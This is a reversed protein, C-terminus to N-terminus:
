GRGQASSGDIYPHDRPDLGLTVAGTAEALLKHCAPELQQQLMELLERAGHGAPIAPLFEIAAVGPKKLFANKGWFYGTNLAVPVVPVKLHASLAGIGPHYFVEAGPKTRTGEPFIVLQRGEHLRTRAAKLMKKLSSTGKSRDIAIMGMFYLYLGYLPLFLLSRKLVYAPNRILWLVLLIDFASQHKFAYIAPGRLMNERGRVDVRLNCIIRLMFLLFVAWVYGVHRLYRYPMFLTPLAILALGFTWIVYIINFVLARLWTM